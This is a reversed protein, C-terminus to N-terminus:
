GGALVRVDGERRTVGVRDLYECLPVAFRRSTSLADRIEGVTAGRGGALLEGIRRRLEAEGDAHLYIAECVRVLSGEACAVEFVAPLTSALGGAVNAFSGPEPPEFGAVRCAEVIRDRLKRQNVSLRPKFDARAVRRGDAVLEGRKLLRDLVAAVLDGPLYARKVAVVGREHGSVLSNAAHLEAVAALVSAEWEAVRDPHFHRGPTVEVLTVPREADGALRLLEAAAVGDTGALWAVADAREASTGTALRELTEVTTTDRRRIKRANPQVVRGGGLTREGSSDRVVFPQGWATVVPEALFLQAVGSQGPELRDADLLSVVAQVDGTGLHLRLPLRHKVGPGDASARLEVTLVRAPSLTGPAALEQGRSVDHLDVGALNIAARQGSEVHEVADGHRHLARGRVVEAPHNSRHWEVSDGVALRGQMVTGTVVTGHGARTFARDIALRFPLGAAARSTGGVAAVLAARLDDLGRGTRVSTPVIPDRGMPTGRLLERVEATVEAIREETVLDCKTLAVVGVGVGLLNLIDLHERTQPMVGDDAAVVLLALDFGTAGAVMNRVFKEHGPVDVVGFTVGGLDLRAFGIDITIGRAKEEPLRDCDTGTLARVLATKGHDIHGATGLIGDRAV